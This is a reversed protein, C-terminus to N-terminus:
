VKDDPETDYCYRASGKLSEVVLARKQFDNLKPYNEFIEKVGKLWRGFTILKEEFIPIKPVNKIKTSRGCSSDDSTRSDNLESIQRYYETKIQAVEIKRNLNSKELMSVEM